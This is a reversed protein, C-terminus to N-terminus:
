MRQAPANISTLDSKPKFEATLFFRSVMSWPGVSPGVSPCVRKELHSSTDFVFNCDVGARAAEGIVFVIRVDKKLM